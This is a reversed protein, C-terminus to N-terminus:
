YAERTDGQLRNSDRLPSPTDRPSKSLKKNQSLNLNNNANKFNFIGEEERLSETQVSLLQEANRHNNLRRLRLLVPVRLHVLPEDVLRVLARHPEVDARQMEVDGFFHQAADKLRESLNLGHRQHDILHTWRKCISRNCTNPLPFGLASKRKQEWTVSELPGINYRSPDGM